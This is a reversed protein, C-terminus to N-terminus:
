FYAGMDLDFYWDFKALRGGKLTLGKLGEEVKNGRWSIEIIFSTCITFIMSLYDHLISVIIKGWSIRLLMCFYDAWFSDQERQVRIIYSM